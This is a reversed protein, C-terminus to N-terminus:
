RSPEFFRHLCVRNPQISCHSPSPQVSRLSWTRLTQPRVHRVVCWDLSCLLPWRVSSCYYPIMLYSTTIIRLSIITVYKFHTPLHGHQGVWVGLLKSRLHHQLRSRLAVRPLYHRCRDNQLWYHQQLIPQVSEFVCGHQQCQLVRGCTSRLSNTRNKEYKFLIHHYHLAQQKNSQHFSVFSVSKSKFRPESNM